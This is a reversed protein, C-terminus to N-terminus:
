INFLKNKRLQSLKALLQGWGVWKKSPVISWVVQTMLITPLPSLRRVPPSKKYNQLPGLSLSSPPSKISKFKWM